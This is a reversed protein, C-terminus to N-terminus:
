AVDWLRDALGSARVVRQTVAREVSAADGVLTVVRRARTVATYLLERTALRSTPSPLVVIVHDFESGQSKHITMAHVTEVSELRVPALLRPAEPGPFAVRAGGPAAVVVGLDGNFLGNARDTATVLVPRGVYFGPALPKVRALAEEVLRNWGTVGFPGRRHACLVRLSTLAELADDTDGREALDRVRQASRGVEAVVPDRADTTDGPADIWALRVGADLALTLQAVEAEPYQESAGGVEALLELALDADGARVAQAFRDIVSGPPFRFSRTLVSVCGALPGAPPPGSGLAADVAPGAIDGLVSGAEVSALQGPDGVLVVRADPRVADLLRAMLPLSVMSTEDVIVVDEVLPNDAHHRMRVTGPRAGLLAHLTTARADALEDALTEVDSLSSRRLQDAVAHFAEGMRAAAKGTPAALAIRLRGSPDGARLLALLAAVTQTKGTGPGGVIVALRRSAGATAASWQPSDDADEGPALPVLTQLLEVRRADALAAAVPPAAARQRLEGAVRREYALYRELYLRTGHLAMPRPPVSPTEPPEGDVLVEVLPSAALAAQWAAIDSPWPLDDVGASEVVGRDGEVEAAASAAVTALDLCTHGLRPARAALAAAVAVEPPEAGVGTLRCLTAALHADGASVVGAARWPAM